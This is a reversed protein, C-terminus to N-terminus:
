RLERTIFRVRIYFASQIKTNFWWVFYRCWSCWVHTFHCYISYVELFTKFYRYSYCLNCDIIYAVVKRLNNVSLYQPIACEGSRSILISSIVWFKQSDIECCRNSPDINRNFSNNYSPILSIIYLSVLM